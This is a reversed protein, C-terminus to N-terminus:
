RGAKAAAKLRDAWPREFGTLYHEALHAAVEGHLLSGYRTRLDNAMVNSIMYGLLYSMQGGPNLALHPHWAWRMGADPDSDGWFRREIQAFARRPESGAYVKLEFLAHAALRRVMMIKKLRLMRSLRAADAAPLDAVDRLWKEDETISDFLMAIGHRMCDNDWRFAQRKDLSELANFHIARGSELFVTRTFDLGSPSLRPNIFVRFDKLGPAIRIACEDPAYGPGGGIDFTFPPKDIGEPDLSGHEPSFGMIRLTKKLMDMARTGDVKALAPSSRSLWRSLYFAFDQPPIDELDFAERLRGKADDFVGVAWSEFSEIFLRLRQPTSDQTELLVHAYSERGHFAKSVHNLTRILNMKMPSLSMAQKQAEWAAERMSPDECGLLLDAIQVETFV